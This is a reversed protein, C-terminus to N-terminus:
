EALAKDLIEDERKIQEDRYKQYRGILTQIQAKLTEGAPKTENGLPSLQMDAGRYNLVRHKTGFDAENSNKLFVLHTSNPELSKGNFNSNVSVGKNLMLKVRQKPKLDGKLTQYVTCSCPTWGETIPSPPADEVRVIAVVDAEGILKDLGPYPRSFIARSPLALACLAVLCLLFRACHKM